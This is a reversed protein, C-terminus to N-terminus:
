NNNKHFEKHCKSCMPELFECYEKLSKYFKDLNTPKKRPHKCVKKVPINYTIHHIENAKNGCKCNKNLIEWIEKSYHSTWYRERSKKTKFNRRCKENCFIKNKLHTEFRENCKKCHREILNKGKKLPVKVKICIKFFECSNCISSMKNFETTNFCDKM